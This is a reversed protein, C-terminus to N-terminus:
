EAIRTSTNYDTSNGRTNTGRDTHEEKPWREEVAGFGKTMDLGCRDNPRKLAVVPAASCDRRLM